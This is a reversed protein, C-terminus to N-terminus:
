ALRGPAVPASASPAATLSASSRPTRQEHAATAPELALDDQGAGLVGSELQHRGAQQGVLRRGDAAHRADGVHEGHDVHQAREAGLHGEVVALQADVGRPLQVLAGGVLEHPAHPGADDDHSGHDGTEAPGRDGHGAAAVDARPADVEVDAAQLPQAGGDLDLMAEDLDGAVPQPAGDHREVVGADPRGLVKEHRRRRGLPVVTISLAARSGSITSRALNRMDIPAWMWPAPLLEIVISPPWSSCPAMWSTTASRM